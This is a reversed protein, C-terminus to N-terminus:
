GIVSSTVTGGASVGSGSGSLGDMATRGNWFKLLSGSCSYKASPIASSKIVASERIVHNKTMAGLEDKM